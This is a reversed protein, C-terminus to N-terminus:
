SVFILFEINRCRSTIEKRLAASADTFVYMGFVLLSDEFQMILIGHEFVELVPIGKRNSVTQNNVILYLVYSM